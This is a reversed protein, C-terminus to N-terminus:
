KKLPRVRWIDLVLTGSALAQVVETFVQVAHANSEYPGIRRESGDLFRCVVTDGDVATDILTARPISVAAGEKHIVLLNVPMM